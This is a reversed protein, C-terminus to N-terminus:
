PTTKVAPKLLGNEFAIQIMSEMSRGAIELFVWYNKQTALDTMDFLPLIRESIDEMLKGGINTDGPAYTNM